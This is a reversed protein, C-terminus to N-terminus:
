INDKKLSSALMMMFPMAVLTLAIDPFMYTANYVFTYTWMGVTHVYENWDLAKTIEYWVVAGCFFSSLFRLIGATLAGLLAKAIRNKILKANKFVGAIGVVTFPLIYDLLICLIIGVASPVYAVNGLGFLLQIVSHVFGTALGWKVGHVYSIFMIPVTSFLTVAGGLPAEWLKIFSLVTALAVMLACESLIRTKTNKLTIIREYFLYRM